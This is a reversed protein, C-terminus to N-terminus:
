SLADYDDKDQENFEFHNPHLGTVVDLIDECGYRSRIIPSLERALISIVDAKTDPIYGDATLTKKVDEVLNTKKYWGKAYLATHKLKM